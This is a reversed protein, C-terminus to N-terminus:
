QIRAGAEASVREVLEPTIPTVRKEAGFDTMVMHVHHIGQAEFIKKGCAVPCGDLVVNQDAAQASSVFGELSAGVAALCTMSGTGGAMLTRAVQDALLGVNAAGSCAYLLTTKAKDSGSCACSCSM